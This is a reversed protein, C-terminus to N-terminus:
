AIRKIQAEVNYDVNTFTGSTLMTIVTNAKARIHIPVGTYTQPGDANQAVLVFGGVLLALSRTGPNGTEDTWSVIVAFSYTAGSITRINGSVEYSSDVSPTFSCINAVAAINGVSRGFIPVVFLNNSYNNSVLSRASITATTNGGGSKAIIKVQLFHSGSVITRIEGNVNTSTDVSFFNVGDDSAQLDVQVSGPASAYSVQWTYLAGNAPGSFFTGVTGAGGASANLSTVAAANLEIINVPAAM